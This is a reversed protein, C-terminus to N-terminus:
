YVQEIKINKYFTNLIDKYSKGAKSLEIAGYQSMGAGHGYGGGYIIFKRGSKEVSFFSSPLSGANTLAIGTHRVLTTKEDTYNENCKISSRIYSDGKVNVAANSFIFSVEKVIGNKGRKVIKIDKLEKLAPLKKVTKSNEYVTIYKKYNENAYLKKLTKNLATTIGAASYEVHWRFYPYRSDIAKINTDKFFKLWGDESAPIETKDTLYNNNVIYSRDDSTGDPNFWVDKYDAGTGASTSYYKADIPKRNYTMIMGKTSNVAETAISNMEINNYVQSKTTDDVHFGLDAFRNSMMDSIAYTRAAIAQCKLSELGGSAPMESPVVKKLYDEINVENVIVMKEDIIDFELVGDYTPNFSSNGREISEVTLDDGKIYVRGSFSLTKDNLSVKLKSGQQKIEIISKSPIELSMNERISYLKSPSNCKIKSSSHFVSSLNTTSIGVRMTSYDMPYILFTKIEGKKNKFVKINSKGVILSKSSSVSLNSSKDVTYFNIKKAQKLKGLKEMNYSHEYKVMVRDSAPTVTKFWFAKFVNYKFNVVTLKPFSHPTKYEKEKGNVMITISSSNKQTVVGQEVSRPFFLILLTIIFLTIFMVSIKRM